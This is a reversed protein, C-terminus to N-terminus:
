LCQYYYPPSVGKCTYGSECATCGKWDNGGCQDWHKAQCGNSGGPAASSTTRVSNSTRTLTRSTSPPKTTTPRATTRVTTTPKPKGLAWPNTGGGPKTATTASSGDCYGVWGSLSMNKFVTSMGNMGNDQCGKARDAPQVNPVSPPYEIHFVPKGAALFAGCCNCEGFAACQENVAFQIIPTVDPLIDM